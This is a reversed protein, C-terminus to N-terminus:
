SIGNNRFIELVKLNFEKKLIDQEKNSLDLIDGRKATNGALKKKETEDRAGIIAVGNKHDTTKSVVTINNWMDNTVSFDVIEGHSGGLMLQRWQKYGGQLIALRRAEEGEGLTRWELAKRKPKSGLLAECVSKKFSKCGVLMPKTSYPKFKAGKANIGTEQVRQRLLSLANVAIETMIQGDNYVKIYNVTRKFRKNYDEITM